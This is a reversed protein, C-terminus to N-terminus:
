RRCPWSWARWLLFSNCSVELHGSNVAARSACPGFMGCPLGCCAAHHPGAACASYLARLSYLFRRYGSGVEGGPEPGGSVKPAQATSAMRCYNLCCLVLCVMTRVQSLGELFEPAVAVSEMRCRLALHTLRSLASGLERTSGVLQPSLHACPRHNLVCCCVNPGPASHQARLRADAAQSAGQVISCAVGAGVKGIMLRQGSAVECTCGSIRESCLAEGAGVKDILLDLSRLSQLSGLAALAEGRLVLAAMPGASLGALLDRLLAHM